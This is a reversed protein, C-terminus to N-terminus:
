GKHVGWEGVKRGWTSWCLENHHIWRASHVVAVRESKSVTHNIHLLLYEKFCNESDLDPLMLNSLWFVQHAMSLVRTMEVARVFM